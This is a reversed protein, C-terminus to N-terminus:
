RCATASYRFYRSLTKELLQDTNGALYDLSVELVKAIRAAVEITPLVENREYGGIIEGSVGVAKGL